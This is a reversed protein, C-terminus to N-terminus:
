HLYIHHVLTISALFILACFLTLFLIKEKTWSEREREESIAPRHKHTIHKWIRQWALAFGFFSLVWSSSSFVPRRDITVIRGDVTQYASICHFFPLIIFIAGLL